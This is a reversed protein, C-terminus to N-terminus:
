GNKRAKKSSTKKRTSGTKFRIETVLRAGILSNIREMIFRKEYELQQSWPASSVKVMLMGQKFSEPQANKATDPDVCQSWVAFIRDIEPNLKNDTANLIRELVASLEEPIKKVKRKEAM